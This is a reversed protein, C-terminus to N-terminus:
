EKLPLTVTFISGKGVDGDVSITGGYHKVIEAVIKIM